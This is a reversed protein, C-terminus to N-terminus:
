PLFEIKLGFYKSVRVKVRYTVRVRVCSIKSVRVKVRKSVRTRVRDNSLITCAFAIKSSIKVIPQRSKGPLPYLSRSNKCIICICGYKKTRMYSRM